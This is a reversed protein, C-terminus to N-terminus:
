DGITPLNNLELFELRILDQIQARHQVLDLEIVWQEVGFISTKGGDKFLKVINELDPFQVLNERFKLFKGTVMLRYIKYNHRNFSMCYKLQGTQYGLYCLFPLYVSLHIGHMHQPLPQPHTIYRSIWVAGDRYRAGCYSIVRDQWYLFLLRGTKMEGELFTGISNRQTGDLSYNSPKELFSSRTDQTHWSQLQELIQRGQTFPYSDERLVVGPYRTKYETM